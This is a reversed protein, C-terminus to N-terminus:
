NYKFGYLNLTLNKKIWGTDSSSLDFLNANTFISEKIEVSAIRVVGGGDCYYMNDYKLRDQMNWRNGWDLRIM